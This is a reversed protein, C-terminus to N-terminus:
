VQTNTSIKTKMTIDSKTLINGWLLLSQHSWIHFIKSSVRIALSATSTRAPTGSDKAEVTIRYRQNSSLKSATRLVHFDGSSDLTFLGDENGRTIRVTTKGNDGMDTDTVSVIAVLKGVDANEQITEEQIRGQLNRFEVQPPTNVPCVITAVATTSGKLQGQVAKYARVRVNFVQYIERSNRPTRQRDELERALSLAGSKIDLAFYDQPNEVLEYIMEGPNQTDGDEARLNLIVSGVAMTRNMVATLSGEFVPLFQLVNLQFDTTVNFEGDTVALQIQYTQHESYNLPRRLVIDALVKNVTPVQSPLISFYDCLDEGSQAPLCTLELTEGELDVDRAELARFVRTGVPIDEYVSATYPLWRFSPANDNIDQVMVSVPVKVTNDEGHEVQDTIVALFDIQDLSERDVQRALSVVGTQPEVTLMTTGELGFSVPSGEPDSAQLTFVETGIDINEELSIGDPELSLSPPLNLSCHSATIVVLLSWAALMKQSTPHQTPVSRLSPKLGM